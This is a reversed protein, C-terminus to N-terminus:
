LNFAGLTQGPAHVSAKCSDHTQSQDTSTASSMRQSASRDPDSEDGEFRVYDFSGRHSLVIPPPAALVTRAPVDKAVVVNVGIMADDGIVVPGLVRAGCTVNVRDGLRPSGRRQGRGSAAILTDHGLNCNKGIVSDGGVIVGGFHAIYLGPGIHTSPSISIGTLIEVPRKALERLLRCWRGKLGRQQHAWHGYRYLATALVGPQTVVIAALSRRSYKRETYFLYRDADSRLLARVDDFRMTCCQMAQNM